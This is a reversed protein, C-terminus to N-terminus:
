SFLFCTFRQNHPSHNCLYSNSLCKISLIYSICFYTLNTLIRGQGLVIGLIGGTSQLIMGSGKALYLGYGLWEDQQFFTKTIGWYIIVIPITLLINVIFILKKNM